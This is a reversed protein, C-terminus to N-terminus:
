QYQGHGAGWRVRMDCSDHCRLGSFFTSVDKIDNGIENCKEKFQPFFERLVLVEPGAAVLRAEV